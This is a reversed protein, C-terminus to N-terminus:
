PRALGEPLDEKAIRGASSGLECANFYGTATNESVTTIAYRLMKNLAKPM